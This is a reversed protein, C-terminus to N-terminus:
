RERNEEDPALMWPGFLLGNLFVLAVIVYAHNLLSWIVTEATPEVTFTYIGSM